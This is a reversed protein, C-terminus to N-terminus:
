PEANQSEGRQIELNQTRHSWTGGVPFGPEANQSEGGGSGLTRHETVGLGGGRPFYPEANQSELDRGRPNLTRRETVGM